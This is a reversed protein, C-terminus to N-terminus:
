VMPHATSSQRLSSTQDESVLEYVSVCIVDALRQTRATQGKNHLLSDKSIEVPRIIENVGEKEVACILWFLSGM